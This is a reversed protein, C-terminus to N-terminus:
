LLDGYVALGAMGTGHGRNDHDDSGWEARLAMADYPAIAPALLPHGRNVGTELLCGAVRPNKEFTTRGLLEDAAAFQEHNPLEIFHEATIKALRLEAISNILPLSAVLQTKTGFLTVVSREPFELREQDM